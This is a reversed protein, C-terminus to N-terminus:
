LANVTSPVSFLALIVAMSNGALLFPHRIEATVSVLFQVGFGYLQSVLDNV